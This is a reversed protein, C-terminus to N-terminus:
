CRYPSGLGNRFPDAATPRLAPDRGSCNSSPVHHRVAHRATLPAAGPRRDPTRNKADPEEKEKETETDKETEKERDDEERGVIEAPPSTSVSALVSPDSFPLVCGVALLLRFLVSTLDLRYRRM